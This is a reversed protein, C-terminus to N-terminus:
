SNHEYMRERNMFLEYAENIKQKSLQEWIKLADQRNLSEMEGGFAIIERASSDEGIYCLSNECSTFTAYPCKTLLCDYSPQRDPSVCCGQSNNVEWHASCYVELLIHATM